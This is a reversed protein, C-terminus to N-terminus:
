KIKRNKLYNRECEESCFQKGCLTRNDKKYTKVKYSVVSRGFLESIKEDIGTPIMDYCLCGCVDCYHKTIGGRVRKHM